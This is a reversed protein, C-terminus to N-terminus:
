DYVPPFWTNQKDMSKVHAHTKYLRIALRIVAWQSNASLSRIVPRKLLILSFHTVPLILVAEDAIEFM